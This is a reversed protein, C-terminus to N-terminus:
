VIPWWFLGLFETKKLNYPALYPHADGPVTYGKMGGASPILTVWRVISTTRRVFPNTYASPKELPAPLPPYFVVPVGPACGLM